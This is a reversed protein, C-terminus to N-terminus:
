NVFIMVNEPAIPSQPSKPIIDNTSLFPIHPRMHYNNTIYLKFTKKKKIFSPIIISLSSKSFDFTFKTKFVHKTYKKIM